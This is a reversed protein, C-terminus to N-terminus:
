MIEGNLLSAIRSEVKKSASRLGEDIHIYGQTVGRKGHGLLGAITVESFGLDGAVSAFTHRLTHATVSELQAAKCLRTLLDPVQKYHTDGWDSRFVYGTGSPDGQAEILKAAAPGIVRVQSDSKTDPFRIVGAEGDVWERKLMQAENLRFGTLAIFRVAALGVPHEGREAAESMARGFVVLEDTSLRRDRPKSALRRVGSAPNAEIRGRRKAHELISHLTSVSRSAAGAGGTTVRGRGGSKSAQSRGCAIDAQMEEIHHLKLSRIQKAGVLPKIHREIRSRDMRLTSAKIPRRMRGLLRGAEAESLYWDCLDAVSPAERAVKKEAAPDAGGAVAGLKMRAQIRAQEVTLVGFRALVIRRSRGEITRYQVVFSKSGSPTIRVGFGRLEPDWVFAQGNTPPTLKDIVTKTLRAM